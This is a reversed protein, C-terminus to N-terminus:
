LIGNENNESRKQLLHFLKSHFDKMPPVPLGCQMLEDGFYRDGTEALIYQAEPRLGALRIRESCVNARALVQVYTVLAEGGDKAAVMWCDWPAGDKWSHLRYYDGNEILPHYKRYMAIQAPIQSLETESLRAFDLEYGFTGSLAVLARTEIPTTRGLQENPCMSVHASIASLPYLLATGEQIRLREIADTDDSCWIQPSYYLMGADFRHGGSSCNELLLDPFEKTLRDQLQYVGLVYRHFIEGQRNPPLTLNGVDSLFRNMDWKVYEIQASRLVGAVSEYVADLVEQRSFDLVLQNRQQSPTRNNLQLAWDPHARLLDSDPNAMEPEFWLGFKMGLAHIRESLAKLGGPLKRENVTWDGLGARDNDRAGFWGDDLVMLDLGLEAARAAIAVIKDADFDFYTAEWNNILLPKPACTYKRLLHTRYFDHLNRTMRGLGAASYTLVAEPTCFTDKPALEWTFGDPCIGMVLRVSNNRSLEAQALFNGSYTFNMAYVEGRREDTQPSVLALFPHEDPSTEGKTSRLNQRGYMLPVRQQQRERAWAGHLSLLEYGRNDTDLCASLARKITLQKSGSNRIVAHRTIVDEQAFVSYYLEVTLGLVADAAELVLTKVTDASGYAAPLGPLAPTGDLIRHSVYFLEAGNQGYENLIELCSERYDGVGGTPYEQPFNALFHLKQGENTDPAPCEQTRFVYAGCPHALREGYYIHGIHGDSSLGILYSTRNTDLKFIHKTEDFCIPVTM